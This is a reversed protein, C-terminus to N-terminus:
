RRECVLRQGAVGINLIMKSAKLEEVEFRVQGDALFLLLARGQLNYRGEFIRGEDVFAMLGNARFAYEGNRGSISGFCWWKGLIMDRPETSEAPPTLAGQTGVPRGAPTGSAKRTRMEGIWDAPVAFNLNQGYRTQFTNIGVLQGSTDFLGGGSSGPSIPATTQIVTGGPVERLSSVIGNSLTLDLGLPAGIAYVTQGTRLTAVSGMTVAPASLGAVGLRCLDFEEDAVDVTAAYTDKGIKVNIRAGRATVHCNTIVTARDIVVGSGSAIANGNADAVNIRVISPALDAFLEEATRGTTAPRATPAELQRSAPTEDEVRTPPPEASVRREQMSAIETQPAVPPKKAKWWILAGILLMAGAALKFWKSAVIDSMTWPQLDDQVTYYVAQQPGVTTDYSARLLPDSLTQFAKRALVRAAPDDVDARALDELTRRYAFAIEDATAYVEIGLIQYLNKKMRANWLFKFSFVKERDEGCAWIQAAM